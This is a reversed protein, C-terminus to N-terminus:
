FVSNLVLGLLSVAQRIENESVNLAPMLRLTNSRPANILLGQAFAEAQVQAAIPTQLDIAWLLGRGRVASFGHGTALDSGLDDLLEGLLKGRANVTALFEVQCVTEIVALGSACMLPNGNYTGGQDGPEFVCASEVAM